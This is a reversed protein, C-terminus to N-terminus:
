RRYLEIPDFEGDDVGDSAAHEEWRVEMFGEEEEGEEEEGTRGALKEREGRDGEEGGQQKEHGGGRGGGAVSKRHRALKERAGKLENRIQEFTARARRQKKGCGPCAMEVRVSHLPHANMTDCPQALGAEGDLFNDQLPCALVQRGWSAHGCPSYLTRKHYCM